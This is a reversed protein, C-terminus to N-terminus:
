TEFSVATACARYGVRPVTEILPATGPRHLKKRLRQVHVTVTSLDGFRNGWVRAYLEQPRFARGANSVLYALLDFEKPALTVRSGARTVTYDNLHILYDGFRVARVSPAPGRQLYRLNTRVRALLVRPSFPKTVFDDAGVGLGLVKDEDSDRASVIIVPTSQHARFQTLFQFGDRGPLNIDLIVLHCVMRRLTSEAEEASAVCTSELGEKHLYLEILEAIAADDEVVLVHVAAADPHAPAASRTSDPHDRVSRPHADAASAVAAAM